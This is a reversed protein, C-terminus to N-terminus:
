KLSPAMAIQFVALAKRIGELSAKVSLTAGSIGDVGQNQRLDSVPKGVLTAFWASSPKYEPPEHFALIESKVLEGKPSLAILITEPQTRVTHSEIVAYGLIQGNRRAEFFTYLQSDLKAKAIQEITATQEDTLFVQQDIIEVGKGFALEFAEEKSYFVTSHVSGCVLMLWFLASFKFIGKM